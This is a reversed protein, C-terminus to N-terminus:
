RRVHQCRERWLDHFTRGEPVPLDRGATWGGAGPLWAFAGRRRGLAGLLGVALATVFHYLKPRKALFAWLKIASRERPPAIRQDVAQERLKRMMRPVPIRM